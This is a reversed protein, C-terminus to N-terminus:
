DDSRPAGKLGRRKHSKVERDLIFSGIVLGISIGNVFAMIVACEPSM